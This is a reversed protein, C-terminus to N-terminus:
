FDPLTRWLPSCAAAARRTFLLHAPLWGCPTHVVPSCSGFGARRLSLRAATARNVSVRRRLCARRRAFPVFAAYGDGLRGGGQGGACCGSGPQVDVGPTSLLSVSWRDHHCPPFSARHCVVTVDVDCDFVFAASQSIGSVPWVYMGLNYFKALIVVIGISYITSLMLMDSFSAGLPGEPHLTGVGLNSKVGCKSFTANSSSDEPCSCMVCLQQPYALTHQWYFM